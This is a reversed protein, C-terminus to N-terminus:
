PIDYGADDIAGRIADDDLGVGAVTVHKTALDVSVEHIGDVKEVEDTIAIRCHECSIGPVTYTIQTLESTSM